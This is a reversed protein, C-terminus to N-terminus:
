RIMTTEPHNSNYNKILSKSKSTPQTVIRDDIYPYNLALKNLSQALNVCRELSM